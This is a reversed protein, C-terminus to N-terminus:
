FVFLINGKNGSKMLHDVYKAILEAPRNKRVNIFYKFADQVTDILARNNEFCDFLVVDLRTKFELLETVMTSDKEPNVVIASGQTRVYM